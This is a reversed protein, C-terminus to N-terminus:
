IYCSDPLSSWKKVCDNFNAGGGMGWSATVPLAGVSCRFNSVAIGLFSVSCGREWNRCEHIQSRNIHEWLDSVSGHIYFNPVLSCLKMEPFIQKSNETCHMQFTGAVCSSSLPPPPLGTSWSSFVHVEKCIRIRHTRNAHVIRVKLLLARSKVDVRSCLSLSM